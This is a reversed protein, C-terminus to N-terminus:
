KFNRYITNKELSIGKLEALKSVTVVQYGRIYLEPLVLKLAESTTYHIDHLLIIDGDEVEELIIDVTKQVDKHKWDETDISWLIFSYNLEKKLTDSISGYPPRILSVTQGTIKQIAEDTSQLDKTLEEEKLKTLQKHSYTHSGIENGNEALEKVTNPYLEVNSGIMFFTANMHNQKLTNIVSTTNKNPGDDFTIAITKAKPNLVPANPNLNDNEEKCEYDIYPKLLSCTLHVYTMENYVPTTTFDSFYVMIGDDLFEYSKTTEEKNLAETIFLPYKIEAQVKILNNFDTLMGKKLLNSIDVTSKDKNKIIKNVLMNEKKISLNTYYKNIKYENIEEIGVGNLSAFSKIPDVKEKQIQIETSLTYEYTEPDKKENKTNYFPAISLIAVLILTILAIFGSEKINNKM